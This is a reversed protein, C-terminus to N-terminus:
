KAESLLEWLEKAIQGCTASLASISLRIGHPAKSALDTELCGASVGRQILDRASGRIGILTDVSAALVM